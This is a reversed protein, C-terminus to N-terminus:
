HVGKVSSVGTVTFLHSKNYMAVTFVSEQYEVACTCKYLQVPAIKSYINKRSQIHPIKDYINKWSM